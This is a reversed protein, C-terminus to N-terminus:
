KAEVQHLPRKGKSGASGRGGKRRQLGFITVLGILGLTTPEPLNIQKTQVPSDPPPNIQIGQGGLAAPTVGAKGPTTVTTAIPSSDNLSVKKTNSRDVYVFPSGEVNTVVYTSGNAVTQKLISYDPAPNVPVPTPPNASVGSASADFVIRQELREVFEGRPSLDAARSAAMGRGILQAFKKLHSMDLGSNFLGGVV